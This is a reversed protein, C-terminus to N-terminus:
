KRRKELSPKSLIIVALAFMRKILGPSGPFVSKAGLILITLHVFALGAM